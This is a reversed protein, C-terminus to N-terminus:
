LPMRGRYCLVNLLLSRHDSDLVSPMPPKIEPLESAAGAPRMFFGPLDPSVDFISGEAPMDQSRGAQVRNPSLPASSDFAITAPSRPSLQESLKPSSLRAMDVMEVVSTDKLKIPTQGSRRKMWLNDTRSQTRKM